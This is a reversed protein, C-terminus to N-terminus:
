KGVAYGTRVLEQQGSASLTELEDVTNTDFNVITNNGAVNGGDMWLGGGSFIAGNFYQTANNTKNEIELFSAGYCM